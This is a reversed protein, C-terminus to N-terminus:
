KKAAKQGEVNVDWKGRTDVSLVCEAGAACATAHKTKNNFSFFSGAPLKQEKGDVTLVLTGAVVTVFHNATHHHVPATFGAVFKIFFHSPGKGPDGEVVAIQVGAMEPVPGWKLDSASVLLAGKSDKEAAQVEPAKSWSLGSVVIALATLMNKMQNEGQNTAVREPNERAAMPTSHVVRDPTVVLSGGGVPFTLRRM